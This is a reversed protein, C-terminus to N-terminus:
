STRGASRRAIWTIVDRHRMCWLLLLALVFRSAQSFAMFDRGYGTGMNPAHGKGATMELLAITSQLLLLVALTLGMPRLWERALAVGVLFLLGAGLNVFDVPYTFGVVWASWMEHGVLALLGLTALVVLLLKRPM